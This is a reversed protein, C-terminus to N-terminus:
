KRAIRDRGFPDGSLSETHLACSWQGDRRVWTSADAADITVKKGDVTLVEHVQYALIVIDETLKRLQVDDSITFQDLTYPAEKVMKTLVEPNIRGFGVVICSEDTLRLATDADKDKLAQWYQKELELLEHEVTQTTM